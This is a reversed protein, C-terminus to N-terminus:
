RWGSQRDRGFHLSDQCSGKV